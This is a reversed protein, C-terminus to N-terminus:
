DIVEAIDDAEDLKRRIAEMKKRGFPVTDLAGWPM